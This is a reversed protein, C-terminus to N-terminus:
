GQLPPVAPQKAGVPSLRKQEKMGPHFLGRFRARGGQAKSHRAKLAELM